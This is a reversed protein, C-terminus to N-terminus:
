NPTDALMYGVGRLTHIYVDAHGEQMRKRLRHIFV